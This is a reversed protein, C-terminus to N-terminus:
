KQQQDPTYVHSFLPKDRQFFFSNFHMRIRRIGIRINIEKTYWKVKCLPLPFSHFNYIVVATEKTNPHLHTVTWDFLLFSDIFKGDWLKNLSCMWLFLSEGYHINYPEFTCYNVGTHSSISWRSLRTKTYEPFAFRPFFPFDLDKEVWLVTHTFVLRIYRINLLKCSFCDM